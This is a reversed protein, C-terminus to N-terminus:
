NFGHIDKVVTPESRLPFGSTDCKFATTEIGCGSRCVQRRKEDPTENKSRYKDFM